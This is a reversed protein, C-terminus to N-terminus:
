CRASGGRRSLAAGSGLGERMLSRVMGSILALPQLTRSRNRPLGPPGDAQGQFRGFAAGLSASSSAAAPMGGGVLDGARRDAPGCGGLGPRGGGRVGRAAAAGHLGLRCRAAGVPARGLAGHQKASSTAAPLDAKGAPGGTIIEMCRMPGSWPGWSEM